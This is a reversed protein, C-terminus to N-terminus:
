QKSRSSNYKQIVLGPIVGLDAQIVVLRRTSCLIMMIRQEVLVGVTFYPILPVSGPLSKDIRM